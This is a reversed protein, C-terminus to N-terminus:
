RSNFLELVNFSSYNGDVKLCGKSYSYPFTLADTPTRATILGSRHVEGKEEDFSNTTTQLGGRM